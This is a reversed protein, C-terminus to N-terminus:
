PRKAEVGAARVSRGLSLTGVFIGVALAVILAHGLHVGSYGVGAFPALAALYWPAIRM